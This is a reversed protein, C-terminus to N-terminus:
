EARAQIPPAPAESIRPKALGVARERLKTLLEERNGPAPFPHKPDRKGAGNGLSKGTITPVEQSSPPSSETSDSDANVSSPPESVPGSHSPPVRSSTPDRQLEDMETLSDMKARPTGAPKSRQALRRIFEKTKSDFRTFKGRVGAPRADIADVYGIVVAEARVLKEGSKLSLSVRLKTDDPLKDEDILVMERRSVSWDEANLFEDESDYPRNIQVSQAM